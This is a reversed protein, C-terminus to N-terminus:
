KIRHYELSSGGATPMLLSDNAKVHAITAVNLAGKVELAGDKLIAPTTRTDMQGAKWLSPTTNKVVFADGNRAITTTREPYKNCKWNGVFADGNNSSCASFAAALALLIIYKILNFM